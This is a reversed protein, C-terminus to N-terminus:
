KGFLDSHTGADILYLVEIQKGIKYILLWDPSIHCERCDKYKGKLAHDKNVAPLKSGESLQKVVSMFKEVPLGRKVASKYSKKFTTSYDISYM